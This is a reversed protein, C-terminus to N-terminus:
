CRKPFFSMSRGWCIESIGCGDYPQSVYDEFITHLRGQVMDIAAESEASIHVVRAHRDWELTTGTDAQISLLKTRSLMKEFTLSQDGGKLKEWARTHKTSTLHPSRRPEQLPREDTQILARERYLHAAHPQMMESDLFDEVEDGLEFTLANQEISKQIDCFKEQIPICDKEECIVKFWAKNPVYTYTAHPKYATLLIELYSNWM